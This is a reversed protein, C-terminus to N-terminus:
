VIVKPSSVVVKMKKNKVWEQMLADIMTNYKYRAVEVKRDTRTCVNIIIMKSEGTEM